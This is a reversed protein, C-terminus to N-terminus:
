ALSPRKADRMFAGSGGFRTATIEALIGLATEEAGRGGLDLGVPGHVRSLQEETFGEARLAAFRNQNTTDLPESLTLKYSVTTNDVNTLTGGAASGVISNTTYDSLRVQGHGQLLVNGDIVLDTPDAYSSAGLRIANSTHRM